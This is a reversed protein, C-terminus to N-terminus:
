REDPDLRGGRGQLRLYEARAIAHSSIPSTLLLLAAVVASRAIIAGDWTGLSAGLLTLDGFVVAKTAAHTRLLVDPLRLLGLVSLTIVALGAVALVDAMWPLAASM